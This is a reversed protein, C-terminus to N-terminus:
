SRKRKGASQAIFRDLQPVQEPTLLARIKSYTDDRFEKYRKFRDDVSLTTDANVAEIQKSESALLPGVQDQQEQTLQLAKTLQKLRMSDVVNRGTRPSQASEEKQSCGVFLFLAFANAAFIRLLNKSNMVAEYRLGARGGVKEECQTRFRVRGSRLESVSRTQM